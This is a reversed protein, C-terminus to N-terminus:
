ALLRVEVSEVQAGTGIEVLEALVSADGRKLRELLDPRGRLRSRVEEVSVEERGESPALACM